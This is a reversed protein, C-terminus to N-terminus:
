TILLQLKISVYRRRRETTISINHQQKYSFCDNRRNKRKKERKNNEKSKLNTKIEHTNNNKKRTQIDTNM